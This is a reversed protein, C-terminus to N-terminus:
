ELLADAVLIWVCLEAGEVYTALRAGKAYHM